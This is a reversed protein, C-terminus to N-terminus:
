SGCLSCGVLSRWQMGMQGCVQCSATFISPHGQLLNKSQLCQRAPSATNSTCFDRHFMTLLCTVTHRHRSKCVKHELERAEAIATALAAKAAALEGRLKDVDAREHTQM